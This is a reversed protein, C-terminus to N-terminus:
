VAKGMIFPSISDPNVLAVERFGAQGLTDAILSPNAFSLEHEEFLLERHARSAYVYEAIVRHQVDHLPRFRHIFYTDDPEGSLGPERDINVEGRMREDNAVQFLLLGGTRLARYCRMIVDSVEDESECYHIVWSLSCIVDYEDVESIEQMRQVRTRDTGLRQQAIEVMEPAADIGYGDIGKAIAAELFVGTGCGVDLLRCSSPAQRLAEHIVTAHDHRYHGPPTHLDYRCAFENFLRYM